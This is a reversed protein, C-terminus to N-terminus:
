PGTAACSTSCADRDAARMSSGPAPPLAVRDLEAHLVRRRGRYWWHSEDGALIADIESRDMVSERTAVVAPVPDRAPCACRAASTPPIRWRGACSRPAPARRGRRAPGAGLLVYRVDGRGGPPRARGPEAAARGGVNTLVLAPRGDRVVLQSTRFITSSAVEYRAHGQHGILFRSLAAVENTPLPRALGADSIHSRVVHLASAAPVSLAAVLACAALLPTLRRGAASVACILTGAAGALAVTTAWRPPDVIASAAVAVIVAGAALGLAAARGHRARAALWGVGVGLTAAIAPDVAELYRPEFRQMKSLAAVGM